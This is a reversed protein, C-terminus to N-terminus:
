RPWASRRAATTASPSSPAAMPSSAAMLAIGNMAAAMGHERVGFGLNRGAFSVATSSPRWTPPDEVGALDASGGLLEPMPPTILGIARQSVPPDPGASTPPEDAARKVYGRPGRSAHGRDPARARRANRGARHRPPGGLAKRAAGGRRGAARWAARLTEPVDFAAYPWDLKVRMGALRTRASRRATSSRSARSPRARRLRHPHPRRHADAPGPAPSPSRATSPRPTTATSPSRAWNSAEFRKRQDDSTALSTAGDITTGNDDFLVDLKALRLHGALSIAEQSVGEM